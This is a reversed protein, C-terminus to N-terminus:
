TFSSFSWGVMSYTGIRELSYVSGKFGLFFFDEPDSKSVSVTELV